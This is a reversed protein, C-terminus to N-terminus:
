SRDRGAPCGPCDGGKVLEVGHGRIDGDDDEAAQIIFGQGDLGDAAARLIVEDLAAGIGVHEDARDAVGKLRMAASRSVPRSRLRRRLTM